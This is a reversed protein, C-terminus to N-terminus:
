GDISKLSKYLEDYTISVNNRFTENRRLMKNLLDALRRNAKNLKATMRPTSLVSESLGLISRNTQDVADMLITASKVAAEIDDRSHDFDSSVKAIGNLAFAMKDLCEEMDDQNNEGWESTEDIFSALKNVIQKMLKPDMPGFRSSSNITETALSAQNGLEELKKSWNESIETFKETYTESIEQYDIIGMENEDHFDSVTTNLIANNETVQVSIELRDKNRNAYNDLILVIVNNLNNQDDYERFLCGADKVSERFSQVQGLQKNDILNPSIPANKFLFAVSINGGDKFRQVAELFEDETGSNANLTPTGFRTWMLGLYIDYDNGIQSQIVSQGSEGIDPAVLSEWTLPNFFIGRAKGNRQNWRMITAVVFERDASVDGPSSIFISVVQGIYSM